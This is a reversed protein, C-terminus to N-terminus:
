KIEKAIFEVHCLQNFDPSSRGFARPIYRKIIRARQAATHIIKMNEVYLGKDEANAELGNLIKLIESAAKVPYKGAYWGRLGTKHSVKKKYRRYPVPRKEDIVDQLFRRAGEFNMGCIAGCIERAAKPSIKLDRGSAKVMIEPETEKFSYGWKPM